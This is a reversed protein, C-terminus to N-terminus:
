VKFNDHDEKLIKESLRDLRRDITEISNTMGLCLWVLLVLIILDLLM